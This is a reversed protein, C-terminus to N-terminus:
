KRFKKKKPEPKEEVPKKKKQEATHREAENDARIQRSTKTM